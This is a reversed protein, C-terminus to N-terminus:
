LFFVRLEVNCDGRSEYYGCLAKMCEHLLIIKENIKKSYRIQPTRKSISGVAGSPDVTAPLSSVNTLLSWSQGILYNNYQGYAHRIRYDNNIGAFDTELRIFFNGKITKRTIEFGIRSFSLSNYYNPISINESGTPIAYTDFNNKSSMNKTDYFASFRISGLIRMQLKGKDAMIYLGRDQTIDLPSNERKHEVSDTAIETPSPTALIVKASDTLEQNYAMLSICLYVAIIIAKKYIHSVKFSM